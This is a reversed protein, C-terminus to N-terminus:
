VCKWGLPTYIYRKLVVKHQLILKGVAHMCESRVVENM